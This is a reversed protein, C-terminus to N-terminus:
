HEAIISYYLNGYESDSVMKTYDNIYKIEGNKTKIRYRLHIEDKESNQFGELETILMDLDEEYVLNNFFGDSFDMLEKIDACGFINAMKATAYLLTEDKDSKCVVVGAPLYDLKSFRMLKNVRDLQLVNEIRALVVEPMDFPKAILQNAGVEFIEKEMNIAATMVIIPINADHNSRRIRKIVGIGDIEPLVMDLMILDIESGQEEFLELAERGDKALVLNYKDNLMNALMLKNIDDDEVIMITQRKTSTKAAESEIHNDDSEYDANEVFINTNMISVRVIYRDEEAYIKLVKLALYVGRYETLFAEETGVKVSRIRQKFIINYKKDDNEDANITTRFDNFSEFQLDRLTKSYEKSVYWPKLTEGELEMICIASGRPYEINSVHGYFDAESKTEVDLGRDAIYQNIELNSMPKGFYYGQIKDCGIRRLMEVQEKTECGEAVTGVGINKALAIIYQMISWSKETNSSLFKMDLKLVDFEYDKLSNLTSYGSGFDDMWVEFGEEHFRSIRDRVLQEDTAMVSETLEVHLMDRSINYKETADILVQCMDMANLDLVSLNISVPVNGHGGKHEYQHLLRCVENIVFIDVRSILNEEELVPIFRNPPLFGLEPSIWRVLAEFGSIKETLARIVPQFYVVLEGDDIAEDLHEIIFQREEAENLERKM